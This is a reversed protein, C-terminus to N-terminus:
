ISVIRLITMQAGTLEKTATEPHKRNGDGVGSNLAGAAFIFDGCIEPLMEPMFNFSLASSRPIGHRAHPSKKQV